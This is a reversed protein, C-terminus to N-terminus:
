NNNFIVENKHDDTNNILDQICDEDSYIDDSYSNSHWENSNLSLTPTDFEPLDTDIGIEGEETLLQCAPNAMLSNTKERNDLSGNTNHSEYQKAQSKSMHFRFFSRKSQKSSQNIQSTCTADTYESSFTHFENKNKVSSSRSDVVEFSCSPNGSCKKFPKIKRKLFKLMSTM